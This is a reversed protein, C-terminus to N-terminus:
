RPVHADIASVVWGDAVEALVIYPKILTLQGRPVIEGEEHKNPLPVRRPRWRAM